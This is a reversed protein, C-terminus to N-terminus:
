LDKITISINNRVVNFVQIFHSIFLISNLLFIKLHRNSKKNIEMKISNFAINSKYYSQDM